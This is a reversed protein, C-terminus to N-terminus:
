FSNLFLQTYWQLRNSVIEIFVCYIYSVAVDIEFLYM